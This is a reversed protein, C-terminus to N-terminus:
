NVKNMLNGMHTFDCPIQRERVPKNWVAYLEGPGDMSDCLTCNNEKKCNLLIGSHLDVMATKDVWRSISVQAAELDQSNYIVSCYFKPTCINKPILTQTEKSLNGSSSDSPWIATGNKTKQPVEINSQFFFNTQVQPGLYLYLYIYKAEKCLWFFSLVNLFLFYGSSGSFWVIHFDSLWPTLSFVNTWVPLLPLSPCNPHLSCM